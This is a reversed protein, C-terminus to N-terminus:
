DNKGKGSFCTWLVGLWVLLSFLKRSFLCYVFKYRWTDPYISNVNVVEKYFPYDYIRMLEKKKSDTDMGSMVTACVGNVIGSLIFERLKRIVEVDLLGKRLFMVLLHEFPRFDFQYKRSSLINAIVSTDSYDHNYLRDSLFVFSYAGVFFDTTQLIDEGIRVDYFQSYDRYMICEKKIAMRWILCYYSDFNFIKLYAEKQDTVVGAEESDFPRYTKVKGDVVNNFGFLVIDARYKEIYGYIFEFAGASYYDDADLFLCYMGRAQNLGVVRASLAGQNIKHIVQIRQDQKQFQECLVWSSDTSGDDVLILEWNEFSQNLVSVVARELYKACNYIPVIISFIIEDTEVM